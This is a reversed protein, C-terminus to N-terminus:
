LKFTMGLGYTLYTEGILFPINKMIGIEPRIAWQDLNNSIGLGFQHGMYAMESQLYADLKVHYNLELKKSYRKSFTFGPGIFSEYDYDNWYAGISLNFLSKDKNINFRPTISFFHVPDDANRFPILQEYRFKIDAKDSLRTGIRFGWNQNLLESSSEEKYIYGSYNGSIECEGKKILTANEFSSNIPAVSACSAISLALTIILFNFTTKM